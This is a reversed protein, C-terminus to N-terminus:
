KKRRMADIEKQKAVVQEETDGLDGSEVKKARTYGIHNMWRQSRMKRLAEVKKFLPDETVVSVDEAPVKVGIGELITRAMLLHGELGPHVKDRSFPQNRADRAKRMATHLDIVKVDDEQLSREWEAYIKMVHDYNFKGEKIQADYIPPTVLFVKKVGANRCQGILKIVGSQFAGFRKKDLPQYIGCNIGYCAFIVEPKVKELVRGMRELLCPRPFRGGAHGKESLGSLTESSLGLSYVDFSKEPNLRQLYYSTMGVYTGGQTISDGLFVIRKGALSEAFTGPLGAVSFVLSLFATKM